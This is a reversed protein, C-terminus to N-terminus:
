WNLAVWTPRTSRKEIWGQVLLAKGNLVYSQDCAFMSTRSDQEIREDEYEEICTAFLQAQDLANSIEDLEDRYRPPPLFQLLQRM